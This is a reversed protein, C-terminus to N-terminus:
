FTDDYSIPTYPKDDGTPHIWVLGGEMWIHAHINGTNDVILTVISDDDDVLLEGVVETEADDYDTHSDFQEEYESLSHNEYDQETMTYFTQPIPTIPQRIM